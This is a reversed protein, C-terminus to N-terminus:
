QAYHVTLLLFSRYAWPSQQFYSGPRLLDVELGVGLWDTAQWRGLLDIEVGYNKGPGGLNQPPEALARLGVVRLEVRETGNDAALSMGAGGVGHGNIGAATTRGAFFGPQTRRFFRFGDVGLVASGWCIWWLDLGIPSAARDGSLVFGIIGLDLWAALGYDAAIDAAFGRIKGDVQRDGFM